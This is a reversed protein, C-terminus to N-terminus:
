AHTWYQGRVIRGVTTSDVGFKAAIDSYRIRNHKGKVYGCYNRRIEKVEELSLKRMKHREGRLSRGKRVMDAMNDRQTGIFLHKPNCCSPNDCSHLINLDHPFSGNTLEYALRHALKPKGCFHAMGYGNQLIAGKWPWCGDADSREVRSWFAAIREERFAPKIYDSRAGM